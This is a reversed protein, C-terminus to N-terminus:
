NSFWGSYINNTTNVALPNADMTRSKLIARRIADKSSDALQIISPAPEMGYETPLEAALNYVIAREWGPPLSITENLGVMSLPKEFIFFTKYSLDPVPWFKFKGYPYSNSYNYFIPRAQINKMAIQEGYVEDTVESVPYDISGLRNYVGVVYTPRTTNFDQNPGITYERQGGVMTFEEIVRASIMMSDNSWSELMQNLTTLADQAEDASPTETKTLIGAKRMAQTILALTTTM